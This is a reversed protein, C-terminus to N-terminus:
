SEHARSASALGDRHLLQGAPRGPLDAEDDLENGDAELRIDTDPLQRMLRVVEALDDQWLRLDGLDYERVVPKLPRLPM